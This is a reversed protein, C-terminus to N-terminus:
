PARQGLGIGRERAPDQSWRMPPAPREMMPFQAEMDVLKHKAGERLLDGVLLLASSGGQGWRNSRMTVRQDNFGVWAGVM